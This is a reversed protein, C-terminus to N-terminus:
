VKTFDDWIIEDLNFVPGDKCVQKLGHRTRNTCSYCVGIGCGMRMEMSVQVPKNEMGLRQRNEGIYKLMPMPGCVFIQDASAAFEPLLDTVLGKHGASGDNTAKIVRVRKSSFSVPRLVNKSAAGFLLTVNKGKRAADEALGYLPAIGIGGAVLLLNRSGSSIEFGNGLPGIVDLPEATQALSLWETGKGAVRVLLSINGDKVRHVSIPRRLMPEDGCKVMVFQGPRSESAIEPARLELCFIGPAVRRNNEVTVTVQRTM